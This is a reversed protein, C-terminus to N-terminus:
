SLVLTPGKGPTNDWIEANYFYEYKNRYNSDLGVIGNISLYRSKDEVENLVDILDQVTQIYKKSM